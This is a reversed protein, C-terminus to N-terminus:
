SWLSLQVMVSINLMRDGCDKQALMKNSGKSTLLLILKDSKVPFQVSGGYTLGQNFVLEPDGNAGDTALM